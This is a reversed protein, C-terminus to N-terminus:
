GSRWRCTSCAISWHSALPRTRWDSSASSSSSRCRCCWRRRSGSSWSRWCSIGTGPSGSAPWRSAGDIAAAQRYAPPIVSLGAYALVVVLGLWHWSDVALILAWTHWGTFKWDFGLAALGPGLLGSEPDIVGLWLMPIMNWPVVLPLAVLMLGWVARKGTGLLLLAVGIGLPVQIALALTSFMLSRGLSALFRDSGLIEAFWKVGVWHPRALTFIDHFGYNIVALLPLAGVLGLLLLAPAVLFWARNDHIRM